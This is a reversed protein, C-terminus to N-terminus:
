EEDTIDDFDIRRRISRTHISERVRRLTPEFSPPITRRTATELSRRYRDNQGQVLVIMRNMTNNEHRLREYDIVTANHRETLHVFEESTDRERQQADALERLALRLRDRCDRLETLATEAVLYASAAEEALYEDLANTINLRQDNSM